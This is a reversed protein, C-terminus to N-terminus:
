PIEEVSLFGGTQNWGSLCDTGTVLRVNDVRIQHVGPPVDFAWAIHAGNQMRWSYPGDLDATSFTLLAAANDLVIRWQCGNYSSSRTGLTDQYTIRLKSSASVKNLSVIRGALTFWANAPNATTLRVDPLSTVIAFGLM